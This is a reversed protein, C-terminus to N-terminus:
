NAKKGRGILREGRERVRKPGRAYCIFRLKDASGAEPGVGGGTPTTNM